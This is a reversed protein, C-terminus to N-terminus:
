KRRWNDDLDAKSVPKERHHKYERHKYERKEYDKRKQNNNDGKRGKDWNQRPKNINKIQEPYEPLHRDPEYDSLFTALDIKVLKNKKKPM